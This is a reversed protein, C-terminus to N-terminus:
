HICHESNCAFIPDDNHSISGNISRNKTQLVILVFDHVEVLIFDDSGSTFLGVSILESVVDFSVKLQHLVSGPKLEAYFSSCLIHSSLKGGCEPLTWVVNVKQDSAVVELLLSRLEIPHVIEARELLDVFACLTISAVEDVRNQVVM